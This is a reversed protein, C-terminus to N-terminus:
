LSIFSHWYELDGSFTPVNMVSFKVNEIAESASSTNTSLASAECTDFYITRIQFYKKDVEQLLKETEMDVNEQIALARFCFIQLPDTITQRAIDHVDAKSM